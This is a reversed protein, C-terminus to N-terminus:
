RQQQSDKYIECEFEQSVPDAQPCQGLKASCHRSALYGCSHLVVSRQNNELKPSQIAIREEKDERGGFNECM